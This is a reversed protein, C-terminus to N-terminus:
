FKSVVQLLTQQMRGKIVRERIGNGQSETIVESGSHAVVKSEILAPEKKWKKMCKMMKMSRWMKECFVKSTLYALLNTASRLMWM